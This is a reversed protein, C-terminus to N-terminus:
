MSECFYHQIYQNLMKSVKPFGDDTLLFNGHRSIEIHRCGYMKGKINIRTEKKKFAFNTDM